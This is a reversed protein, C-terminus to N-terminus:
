QRFRVTGKSLYRSDCRVSVADNLTRSGFSIGASQHDEAHQKSYM